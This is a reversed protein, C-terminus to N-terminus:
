GTRRNGGYRGACRGSRTPRRVAVGGGLRLPRQWGARALGALRRRVRERWGPYCEPLSRGDLYLRVGDYRWRRAAEGLLLEGPAVMLVTLLHRGM